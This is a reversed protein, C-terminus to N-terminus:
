TRPAGDLYCGHSFLYLAAAGVTARRTAAEPAVTWYCVDVQGAAFRQRCAYYGNSDSCIQERARGLFNQCGAQPALGHAQPPPSPAAGTLLLSAFITVVM